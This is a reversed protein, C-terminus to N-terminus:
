TIDDTELKTKNNEIKEVLDIEAKKNKLEALNKNKRTTL